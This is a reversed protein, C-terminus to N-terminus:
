DRFNSRNRYVGDPDTSLDPIIRSKRPLKHRNLAHFGPIADSHSNPVAMFRPAQECFLPPMPLMVIAPCCTLRPQVTDRIENRCRSARRKTPFVWTKNVPLPSANAHIPKM